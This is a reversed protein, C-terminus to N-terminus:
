APPLHVRVCFEGGKETHISIEGGLLGVLRQSLSLGLGCHLGADARAADGRWFREFLRPADAVDIRSGTNTIEIVATAAAASVGIRIEGGKNVYSLANDLLNHLVIELKDPDTAAMCRAAANLTVKVGLADARYQFAAWSHSVLQALDVTRREVAVQGADSRALLLLSQVMAEMGDTIGRCEDLAAEYAAADRPRSRCVELTSRLGALPTRLEHAVDATFSKERAFAQQLRSLLGNLKEVVPALESPVGNGAFRRGLDTERLSEIEGALSEVPKMASGVVRVLVDGMFKIGVACLIALSWALLPLTQNVWLPEAAVVISIMMPKFHIRADDGQVDQTPTFRLLIARGRNSDPLEAQSIVDAFYRGRNSTFFDPMQSPEYEFGIKAGDQEVMGSVLRADSQLSADFDSMLEIWMAVYVGVGLLSFVAVAALTTGVLLRGRLSKVRRGRSM